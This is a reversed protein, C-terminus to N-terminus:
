CCCCAILAIVISATRARYLSAIYLIYIGLVFPILVTLVCLTITLYSVLDNFEDSYSKNESPSSYHFYTVLFSLILSIIYRYLMVIWYATNEAGSDCFWVCLLVMCCQGIYEMCAHESNEFTGWM